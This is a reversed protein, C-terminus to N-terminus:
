GKDLVQQVQPLNLFSERLGLPTHDAIDNIIKQAQQRLRKSETPDTEIQSLMALIQWLIWQSGITEAEVRAEQLCNYAVQTQDLALFAQGQLYLARPIYVQVEFQRLDALLNTAMSVARKYAKQKLALEIDTLIVYKFFIPLGESASGKKAQQIAAEAEALNGNLLHLEALEALTYGQFLLLQKQAVTVAEHILKFGAEIDGLKGLVIALSARVIAKPPLYGALEGLRISDEMATIAQDPQGIEWYSWGVWNQSFAQGWLNDISESIQRAEQSRAIAEQYAGAAFWVLSSASLNDALMPLNNFERWMTNAENLAEQAQAIYCGEFYATGLDNLTYAIQEHLNLQRALALSRESYDIAQAASRDTYVYLIALNWLIKSEAEKDNLQRALTIAMKSLEEGRDPNHVSTFTVYLTSRATLAVLEMAPDHREHALEAMEKYTQLALENQSNLELMRGLQTYLYTLHKSNTQQQDILKLAQRYHEIAEVNAYEAAAIDAALIFYKLARSKDGALLFHQGLVPSLDDVQDPYLQELAKGVQQHLHKRDALLLSEYAVDQVLAHRFIFELEPHTQALRLLGHM